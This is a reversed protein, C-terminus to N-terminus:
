QIRNRIDLKTIRVNGKWKVSNICQKRKTLFFIKSRKNSILYVTFTLYIEGINTHMLQGTNLPNPNKSTSYLHM